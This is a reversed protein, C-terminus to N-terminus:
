TLQEPSTLLGDADAYIWQGPRLRAGGIELPVGLTGWGAKASKVPSTGLAAVMLDMAEIEASDRIAGAVIVATWGNRIARAALLDGLLAVRTSGGGDVVLARGEGPQELEARLVSNDEFCKVTQIPAAIARTSGFLRFPLHLLSLGGAHSDILDATKM